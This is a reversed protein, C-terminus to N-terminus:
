GRQFLGSVIGFELFAKEWPAVVEKKMVRDQILQAVKASELKRFSWADKIILNKLTGEPIKHSGLEDAQNQKETPQVFARPQETYPSQSTKEGDDDEDEGIVDTLGQRTFKRAYTFSSGMTQSNKDEIVPWISEEFEGSVHCLRTVCFFRGEILQGKSTVVLGHRALIEKNSDIMEGFDVYEYEKEYSRGDKNTGRIKAKKTKKPNKIELQAKALAEFLKSKEM